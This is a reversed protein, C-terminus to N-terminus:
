WMFTCSVPSAQHDGNSVMNVILEECFISASWAIRSSLDDDITSLMPNTGEFQSYSVLGEADQSVVRYPCIGQLVSALRNADCIDEKLIDQLDGRVKSALIRMKTSSPFDVEHCRSVYSWSGCVMRGEMLVMVFNWITRCLVEASELYHIHGQVAESHGIPKEVLAAHLKVAEKFVEM